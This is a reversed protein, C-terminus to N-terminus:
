SPSPPPSPPTLTLSPRVEFQGLTHNILETPVHLETPLEDTADSLMVGSELYGRVAGLNREQKPHPNRHPHPHPHPHPRRARRRPSAGRDGQRRWARVGEQRAGRRGKTPPYGIQRLLLEVEEDTQASNTEITPLYEDM